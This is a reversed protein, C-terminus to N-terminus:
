SRRPLSFSLTRPSSCWLLPQSNPPVHWCVIDGDASIQPLWVCRFGIDLELEATMGAIAANPLNSRDMLSVMYMVGTMIILRRDIKPIIKRQEAYSFEPDDDLAEQSPKKIADEGQGSREPSQEVDGIAIADSNKQEAM